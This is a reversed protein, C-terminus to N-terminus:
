IFSDSQTETRLIFFEVYVDLAKPACVVISGHLDGSMCYQDGSTGRM